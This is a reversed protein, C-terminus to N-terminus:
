KLAKVAMRLPGPHASHIASAARALVLGVRRRPLARSFLRRFFDSLSIGSRGFTPEPHCIYFFQLPAGSPAGGEFGNVNM